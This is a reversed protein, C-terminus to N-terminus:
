QKKLLALQQFLEVEKESLKKPIIIKVKAYLDGFESDKGFKPMGMGKLRFIKGNDTEKPIDMNITGKMTRIPAKGGLIATYLEVPADCYLDDEKRDFHSHPQVYVTVYIDGREGGNTGQGGKGKIKLSQADRVGKFKMQLKEGSVELLRTTGQYAEELSLSVETKYDTGKRKTASRRGANGSGFSGGFISEFFDSFNEGNNFEETSRQQRGGGSQYKSWDFGGQNQAGQNEYQKWNEGLEDYKKRKEPNSLVENAESIEKFKDEASKNGPNKDPHYKVALKRYAKKIDEISASKDVGIVKYYDKFEM